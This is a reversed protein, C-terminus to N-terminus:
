ALPGIYEFCIVKHFNLKFFDRHEIVLLGDVEKLGSTKKWTSNCFSWIIELWSHRYSVAGM